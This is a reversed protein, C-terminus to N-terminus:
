WSIGRADCACHMCFRKRRRAALVQLASRFRQLDQRIRGITVDVRDPLEKRLCSWASALSFHFFPAMAATAAALQAACAKRIVSVSRQKLSKAEEESLLKIAQRAVTRSHHVQCSLAYIEIGSGPSSRIPSPTTRRTWRETSLCTVRMNCLKWVAEPLSVSAGTAMRMQALESEVQVPM